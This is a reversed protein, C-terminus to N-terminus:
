SHLSLRYGVGRETQIMDGHEGLKSRLRKMHTDLTRSHVDESYNWVRRLLDNRDLTEDPHKLMHSILKFEISTLDVPEGDVYFTLSDKDCRFPGAVLESKAAVPTARRLLSEVRLLLEKPSFPKTLYDDAGIELGRIRDETQAKATLMMVPVDVTRADRRLERFVAFGDKGPLMLDLIIVDPRVQMAMEEGELGDYAQHVIYDKRQLNFAILDSLDSEDEVILVTKGAM